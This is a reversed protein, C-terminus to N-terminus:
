LPDCQVAACCTDSYNYSLTTDLLKQLYGAESKNLICVHSTVMSRIDSSIRDIIYGSICKM